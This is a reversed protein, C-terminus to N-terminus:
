KASTQSLSSGSPCWSPYKAGKPKSTVSRNCFFLSTRTRTCSGSSSSSGSWNKKLCLFRIMLPVSFYWSLRGPPSGPRMLWARSPSSEGATQVGSHPCDIVVAPIVPGTLRARVPSTAILASKTVGSSWSVPAIWIAATRVFWASATRPAM